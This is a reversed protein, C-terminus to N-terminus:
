NREEHRHLAALIERLAIMDLDRVDISEIQDVLEEETPGDSREWMEAWKIPKSPKIVAAQTLEGEDSGYPQEIYRVQTGSGVTMVELYWVHKPHIQPSFACRVVTGDSLHLHCVSGCTPYEDTFDDGEVTVIDDSYGAIVIEGESLPGFDTSSM